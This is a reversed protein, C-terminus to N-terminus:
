HSCTMDKTVVKEYRLFDNKRQGLKRMGLLTCLHAWSGEKGLADKAPQYHSGDLLFLRSDRQTIKPWNCEKMERLKWSAKHIFTSLTHWRAKQLFPPICICKKFYFVGQDIAPSHDGSVRMVGAQSCYPMIISHTLQSAVETTLEAKPLNSPHRGWVMRAM